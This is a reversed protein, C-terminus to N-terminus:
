KKKHNLHIIELWGLIILILQGILNKFISFNLLYIFSLILTLLILTFMLIYYIRNNFKIFSTKEKLLYKKKFVLYM